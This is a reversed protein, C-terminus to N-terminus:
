AQKCLAYPYFPQNFFHLQALIIGPRVTRASIRKSIRLLVTIRTSNDTSGYIDTTFRAGIDAGGIDAHIDARSTRGPTGTQGRRRM